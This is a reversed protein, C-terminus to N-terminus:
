APTLLETRTDINPNVENNAAAANKIIWLSCKYFLCKIPIIKIIIETAIIAKPQSLFSFLVVILVKDAKTGIINVNSYHTNKVTALKYVLVALYNSKGITYNEASLLSKTKIQYIIM